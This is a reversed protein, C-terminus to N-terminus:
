QKDEKELQDALEEVDKRSVDASSRWILRLLRLLGPQQHPSV